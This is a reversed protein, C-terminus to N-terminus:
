EQRAGGPLLGRPLRAAGGRWCGGSEPPPFPYRRAIHFRLLRDRM